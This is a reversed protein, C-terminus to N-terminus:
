VNGRSGGAGELWRGARPVEAWELTCGWLATRNLNWCSGLSQCGVLVKMRPNGMLNVADVIMTCKIQLRTFWIAQIAWNWAFYSAQFRHALIQVSTRRRIMEEPRSGVICNSNGLRSGRYIEKSYFNEPFKEYSADWGLDLWASVRLEEYKGVRRQMAISQSLFIRITNTKTWLILKGSSVIQFTRSSLLKRTTWQFIVSVGHLRVKREWDFIDVTPWIDARFQNFNEEDRM